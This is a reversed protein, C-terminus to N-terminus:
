FENVVVGVVTSDTLEIQNKVETIDALKTHNLRSVVLAGKCREIIAQADAYKNAPPSDVLVIDYYESAIKMLYSFSTRGLLEQPNPPTTGSTLLSLGQIDEIKHIAGLGVRGVIMDSLGPSQKINFISQQKSERMNADILLTRAGLQSFVVALNATLFSIGERHNPSVIALARNGGKFWRMMLQSRLARYSEVQDSFPEYAAILDDSFNGQGAQLYDYNFQMAIVQQVDAQNILGLKLAADGFLLSEKVQLEVIKDVDETNIKGLQVLLRGIKNVRAPNVSLANTESFEISQKM